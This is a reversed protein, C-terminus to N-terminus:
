GGGFFTVLELRDGHGLGTTTFDAKRVLQGNREVAVPREALGLELLLSAVTAGAPCARPEGNVFLHLPERPEPNV